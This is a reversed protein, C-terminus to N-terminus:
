ADPLRYGPGPRKRQRSLDFFEITAGIAVGVTYALMDLWSFASGLILHGITTARIDNIWAAQYRQSFEDAYSISLAILAVKKIPARPLLWGIAWYVMLSWLADGPYKGLLAPFLAPIKRSAIGLAITIAIAVFLFPRSRL